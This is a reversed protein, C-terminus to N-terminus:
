KKRHCVKETKGNYHVWFLYPENNGNKIFMGNSIIENDDNTIIITEKLIADGSDWASENANNLALELTDFLEAYDHAIFNCQRIEDYYFHSIKYM